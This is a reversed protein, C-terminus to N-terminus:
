PTSYYVNKDVNKRKLPLNGCVLGSALQDRSNLQSRDIARKLFHFHCGHLAFHLWKPCSKITNQAVKFKRFNLTPKFGMYLIKKFKALLQM